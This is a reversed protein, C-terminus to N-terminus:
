VFLPYEFGPNTNKDRHSLGKDGSGFFLGGDDVVEVALGSLNVLTNVADFLLDNQQLFIASGQNRGNDSALHIHALLGLM